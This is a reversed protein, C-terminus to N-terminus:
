KSVIERVKAKMNEFLNEDDLEFWYRKGFVRLCASPHYGYRFARIVTGVNEKGIFVKGNEIRIRKAM